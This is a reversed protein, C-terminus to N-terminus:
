NGSWVRVTRREEKKNEPPHLFVPVFNFTKEPTRIQMTTGSEPAFHVRTGDGLEKIFQGEVWPYEGENTISEKPYYQDKKESM